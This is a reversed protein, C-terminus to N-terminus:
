QSCDVAEIRACESFWSPGKKAVTDLAICNSNSNPNALCEAFYNSAALKCQEPYSWRRNDCGGEDSHDCDGVSTIVSGDKTIHLRIDYDPDGLNMAIRYSGPIRDRMHELLCTQNPNWTNKTPDPYGSVVDACPRPLKCQELQDRLREHRCGANACSCDCALPATAGPACAVWGKPVRVPAPDFPDRYVATFRYSKVPDHYTRSSEAPLDVIDSQAELWCFAASRYQCTDPHKIVETITKLHGCELLDCREQTHLTACFEATPNPPGGPLRLKLRFGLDLPVTSNNPDQKNKADIVTKNDIILYHGPTSSVWRARLSHFEIADPGGKGAFWTKIKPTGSPDAFTHTYSMSMAPPPEPDTYTKKSEILYENEGDELKLKLLSQPMGQVEPGFEVQVEVLEDNEVRLCTGFAHAKPYKRQFDFSGDATNGDVRLVEAEFSGEQPRVWGTPCPAPAWASGEDPAQSSTDDSATSSTTGLDPTSSRESKSQSESGTSSPQNQPESVVICGPAILVLGSVLSGYLMSYAINTPKIANM